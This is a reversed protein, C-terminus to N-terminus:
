VPSCVHSVMSIAKEMYNVLEIETGYQPYISIGLKRM